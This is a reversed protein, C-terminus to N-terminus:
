GDSRRRQSKLQRAPVDFGLAFDEATGPGELDLHRATSVPKLQVPIHIIAFASGL